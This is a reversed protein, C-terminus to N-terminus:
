PSDKSLESLIRHFPFYKGPCETNKGKIDEHRRINRSSIGYQDRLVRTLNLLSEFQAPSIDTKSFDGVLCIQIDHKRNAPVQKKWRWGKEILGDKTYSGNGIVFHYFLGGMKRKLHDRHFLKASGRQTASHHFTITRWASSPYKPGVLRRVAEADMGAGIFKFAAPEVATGPIVLVQGTKLLSPDHIRNARMLDGVDVKYKKAIRYLTQGREVRHTMLPAPVQGIPTIQPSVSVGPHRVPARACGSIVLIFVLGVAPFYRFTKLTM